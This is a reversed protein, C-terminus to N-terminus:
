AFWGVGVSLSALLVAREVAYGAVASSAQYTESWDGITQSVLGPNRALELKVLGVQVRKRAETDDLPTYTVIVDDAWRDAPHTSSWERRLTYGDPLLTWDTTDLTVSTLGLPDGWREVVSTITGALRSLWLYLGGGRRRDAFSGLPGATAIIDLEAADLLTQLSEDSLTTEAFDRFQTATLLM